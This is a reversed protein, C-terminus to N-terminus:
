QVPLELNVREGSRLITIPMREGPMKNQLVYGFLDSETIRNTRGDLSVIIDSKKFGSKKGVAHEGYEGVYKVRLALDTDSLHADRRDSAVVDELVLGGTAM